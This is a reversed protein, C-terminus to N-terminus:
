LLFCVSQQRRTELEKVRVKCHKQQRGPKRSLQVIEFSNCMGANAISERVDLCVGSASGCVRLWLSDGFVLEHGFGSSYAQIRLANRFGFV